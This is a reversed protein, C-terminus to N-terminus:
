RKLFRGMTNMLLDKSSSGLYPAMPAESQFKMLFEQMPKALSVLFELKTQILVDDCASQIVSQLFLVQPQLKEKWRWQKSMNILTLGFRELENLWKSTKKGATNALSIHFFTLAHLGFSITREPQCMMFFKGCHVYYTPLKGDLNEQELKSFKRPSYAFWLKWYKALRSTRWRWIQTRSVSGLLVELQCQVMWPYKCWIMKLWALGIKFHILLDAATAHCLFNSNFYKDAVKNVEHDLFRVIMDM